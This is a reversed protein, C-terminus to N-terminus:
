NELIHSRPIRPCGFVQRKLSVRKNQQKEGPSKVRSNQQEGLKEQILEENLRLNKEVESRLREVEVGLSQEIYQRLPADEKPQKQKELTMEKSSEDPKPPEDADASTEGKEELATAESIIGPRPSEQEGEPAVEPETMGEYSISLDLHVQPTFVYKYLKFHRFYTNMMYTSIQLIQQPTFLEVSFPPRHVSHCLLLEKFYQYCTDITSLPSDTCSAHTEMVISFLSSTQERNFACDQCFSVTYYYLDLIVSARPDSSNCDLHLLLSLTRHIEDVSKAKELTEVDHMTVDRWLCIQPKRKKVSLLVEAGPRLSEFRGSM